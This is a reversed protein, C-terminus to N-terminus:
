VSWRLSNAPMEDRPADPVALPAKAQQCLLRFKEREEALAETLQAITRELGDIHANLQDIQVKRQDLRALLRQAIENARAVPDYESPLAISAPGCAAQVYPRALWKDFLDQWQSPQPLETM